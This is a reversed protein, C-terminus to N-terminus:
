GGHGSVQWSIEFRLRDPHSLWRSPGGDQAEFQTRYTRMAALKLQREPRPIRHVTPAGLHGDFDSVSRNWDVDVDLFERTTAGSVWDPWGYYAAYPMDAYAHTEFNGCLLLRCADRTLVHDDHRGIASPIIFHTMDSPLNDYIASAVEAPDLVSARYPSDLFNLHVPQWGYRSAVEFDEARRELARQQASSSRTLQDYWQPPAIPVGACVSIITARTATRLWTWASLVADDLHPSVVVVHTPSSRVAAV